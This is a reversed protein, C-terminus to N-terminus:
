VRAITPRDIITPLSRIKREKTSGYAWVGGKRILLHIETGHFICSRVNNSLFKLLITSARAVMALLYGRYMERWPEDDTRAFDDRTRSEVFTLIFIIFLITQVDKM